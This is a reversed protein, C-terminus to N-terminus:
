IFVQGYITLQPNDGASREAWYLAGGVSLITVITADTEYLTKAAVSNGSRGNDKAISAIYTPPMLPVVPVVPTNSSSFYVYANDTTMSAVVDSGVQGGVVTEWTRMAYSSRLIQFSTSFDQNLATDMWFVDETDAVAAPFIRRTTGNALPMVDGTGLDLRAFTSGDAAGDTDRRVQGFFLYSNRTTLAFATAVGPSLGADAAEVSQVKKCVADTGVPTCSFVDLGPRRAADALYVTGFGPGVATAIAGGGTAHPASAVPVGGTEDVTWLQTEKNNADNTFWVVKHKAITLAGAGRDSVKRPAAGNAIGAVPILSVGVVEDGWVLYAGDSAIQIRGNTPGSAVVWRQCVGDRCKGGGCGHGCRGCHTPDRNLDTCVGECIDQGAPCAGSDCSDCSGSRGGTGPRTVAADAGSAGGGGSVGPGGGAGGSGASQSDGGASQGGSGQDGGNSADKQRKLSFAEGACASVTFVSGLFIVTARVSWLDM